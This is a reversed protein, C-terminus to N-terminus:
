TNVRLGAVVVLKSTHRSRWAPSAWSRRTSTRPKKRVVSLCPWSSTTYRGSRRETPTATTRSRHTSIPWKTSALPEFRASWAKVDSLTPARSAAELGRTEIRKWLVEIPEDLFHLEVGAGLERAANRLADRESRGWTGWEIIVSRGRELLSMALSRQLEEISARAEEDWLDIGASIMWDDPSM